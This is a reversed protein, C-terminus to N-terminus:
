DAFHCHNVLMISVCSLPIRNAFITIFIIIIYSSINVTLLFYYWGIITMCRKM